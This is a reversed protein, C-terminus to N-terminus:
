PMTPPMLRSSLLTILTSIPCFQPRHLPQNLLKLHLRSSQAGSGHPRKGLSNLSHHSQKLSISLSTDTSTPLSIFSQIQKVNMPMPRNSIAETKTIDMSIGTPSVMFGLFEISKTHFLSKEPKVHLNHEQLQTLVRQIHDHHKDVSNSFVLINDLYVVIFLNSMDQFINNMFHQFAAPANTLGMPMVLFEFSGYRTQFM